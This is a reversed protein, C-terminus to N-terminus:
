RDEIFLFRISICCFFLTILKEWMIRIIRDLISYQIFLHTVTHHFNIIHIDMIESAFKNLVSRKKTQNFKFTNSQTLGEQRTEYMESPIGTKSVPIDVNNESLKM